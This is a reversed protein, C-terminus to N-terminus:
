KLEDCGESLEVINVMTNKHVRFDTFVFYSTTERVFVGEKEYVIEQLPSTHVKRKVTVM